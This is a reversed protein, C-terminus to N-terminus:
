FGLAVSGTGVIVVGGNRGRHAGLCAITADNVYVVSAFRHPRANLTELVSKRGIGALGVVAHMRAIADAPLGADAVAARAAGHVAALARDIGLRVAAPAATGTGLTHGKTDEIRARCGSGGGDIGIFLSSKLAFPAAEAYEASPKKM